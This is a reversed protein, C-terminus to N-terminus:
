EQLIVRRQNRNQMLSSVRQTEIKGLENILLAPNRKFVQTKQVQQLQNSILATRLPMPAIFDFEFSQADPVSRYAREAIFRIADYEDLMGILLYPVMWDTGSVQQAERRELATVQLARQAADGKLLQLVSLAITSEEETLDPQSHGYWEALHHSTEKLTHDLHCLNCASPRTTEIVSAVSPSSITHSRISKLLGYVTHPMHCNVCRSGSSEIPHHTHQAGLREYDQHCQICAADQEMGPKLQDDKWQTQLSVDQQHMTHCSLCTMKGNQACSSEIMGSYARGSVRVQGDPWFNDSLSQGPAEMWRALAPDDLHGPSARVVCYLESAQISEGPRFDLGHSNFSEIMDRSDLVIDGVSHCPACMDSRVSDDLKMPDVIEDVVKMALEGTSQHVMRHGQGPGHCAECSIGFEAVETNRGLPVLQSHVQHRANNRDQVDRRSHTAHCQFCVDNWRGDESPFKLSESEPPNLLSSRRPIWRKQEILFVIPLMNPNKEIESEYWFVHMHHSGTMMVLRHDQDSEKSDSDNSSDSVGVFYEDGDRRFRYTKGLVTVPGGEIAEPATSPLIPQTM